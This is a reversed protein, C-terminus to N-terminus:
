YHTIIYNSMSILKTMGQSHIKAVDFSEQFCVDSLPLSDFKALGHLPDYISTPVIPCSGSVNM